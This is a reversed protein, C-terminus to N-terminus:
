GPPSSNMPANQLVGSVAQRFRRKGRYPDVRAAGNRQGTTINFRDRVADLARQLAQSTM